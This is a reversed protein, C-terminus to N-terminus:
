RKGNRVGFYQYFYTKIGGNYLKRNKTSKLKFVKEIDEYSTIIYYSWRPLKNKCFVGLDKYLKELALEDEALLREGYPPNTIMDGYKADIELDIFNKNSFTICDEVGAQASNYKAIELVKEDIDNGILRLEIDDKENSYAEDRVDVWINEDIASWKESIFNRNVGPAINKAIMAAEIM